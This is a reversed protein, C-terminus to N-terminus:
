YQNLLIPIPEYRPIYKLKLYDSTKIHVTNTQFRPSCHHVQQVNGCCEYSYHENLQMRLLLDVSSISKQNTKDVFM